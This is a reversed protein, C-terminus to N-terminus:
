QSSCARCIVGDRAPYAEKCQPCIAVPGTKLRRYRDPRVHVRSVSLLKEGKEKIEKLIKDLNQEGKKKKKMFWAEIEPAQPLKDVDLHVRIGEGTEKDYLTIAFRGFDEIYLWGNGITCPTLLQVADPLCVRTECIADFLKGEPLHRKAEEVMVGGLIVGPASSGHFTKVIEVYEEFSYGGISKEETSM